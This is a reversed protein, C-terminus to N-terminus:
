ESQEVRVPKSALSTGEAAKGSSNMSIPPSLLTPTARLMRVKVCSGNLTSLARWISALCRGPAMKLM